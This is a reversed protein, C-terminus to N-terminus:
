ESIRAIPRCPLCIWERMRRGSEDDNLAGIFIVRDKLGFEKVRTKVKGKFFM